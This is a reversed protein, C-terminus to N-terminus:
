TSRRAPRIRGARTQMAAVPSGGGHSGIVVEAIMVPIAVLFLCLIYTLVFPGGGNEGALYSFRWLNGLGVSSAALALVFTTRSHWGDLVRYRGALLM